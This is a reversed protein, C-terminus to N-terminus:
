SSKISIKRAKAKATPSKPLTITLVGKAFKAEVEDIDVDDPVGFSRQFSGYSRETLHFDKKKEEREAKKEGKLTLVDDTLTLTVDTEEVGPLDATIEYGDDSENVDVDPAMDFIGNGSPMLDPMRRPFRPWTMWGDFFRDFTRDIEERLSLAPGLLARQAPVATETAKGRKNVPVSTAGRTM